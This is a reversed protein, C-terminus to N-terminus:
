GVMFVARIITLLGSIGVVTYAVRRLGEASIRKYVKAGIYNAAMMAAASPILLWAVRDTVFGNVIRGVTSVTNSIVFFLQIDALYEDNTETCGLFYVVMPPGGMSFLGSLIGGISGSILANKVTPRIKIKGSFFSFYISMGCLAAGLMILLIRSDARKVFIMALWSISCYPILPILLKKITIHKRMTYAIVCSAMLSGMGSLATSEGMGLVLPFFLMVMIGYGFGSVRQVFAGIFCACAIFIFIETGIGM